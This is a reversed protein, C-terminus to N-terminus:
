FKHTKYLMIKYIFVFNKYTTIEIYSIKCKVYLTKKICLGEIQPFFIHLKLAADILLHDTILKKDNVWEGEKVQEKMMRAGKDGCSETIQSLSIRNREKNSKGYNSKKWRNVIESQHFSPTM